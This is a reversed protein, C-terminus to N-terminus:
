FLFTCAHAQRNRQRRQRQRKGSCSSAVGTPAQTGTPATHALVLAGGPASVVVQTPKRDARKMPPLPWRRPHLKLGLFARFFVFGGGRGWYALFLRDFFRSLHAKRHRVPRKSSSRLVRPPPRHTTRIEEEECPQYYHGNDKM